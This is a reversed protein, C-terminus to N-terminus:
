DESGVLLVGAPAVSFDENLWTRTVFRELIAQAEAPTEQMVVALAEVVEHRAGTPLPGCFYSRLMKVTLIFSPAEMATEIAAADMGSSAGQAVQKQLYRDVFDNLFEEDPM